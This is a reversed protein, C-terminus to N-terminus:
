PATKVVVTLDVLRKKPDVVTEPLVEGHATGKERHMQSIRELGKAVAGRNFVQGKKVGLLEVYKKVPAILAGKADLKGIRYQPGEEIPITVAIQTGDATLAEEPMGVRVDVHGRDYYHTAVHMLGLDLADRWYRGGVVTKGNKELLGLLVEKKVKQNGRLELKAIKVQPGEEVHIVVDVKDEPAKSSSWKVRASFHGFSRLEGLMHQAVQSLLAPSFPTGAKVPINALWQAAPVVNSGRVDVARVLPSPVVTYRLEVGGATARAEVSADTIGGLAWLAQLDRSALAPDFAVGIASQLAGRAQKAREGELGLVEIGTVDGRLDALKAAPGPKDSGRDPAMRVERRPGGGGCAALAAVLMLALPRV